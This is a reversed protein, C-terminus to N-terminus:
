IGYKKDRENPDQETAAEQYTKDWSSYAEEGIHVSAVCLTRLGETAFKELHQHAADIASEQESGLRPLIM